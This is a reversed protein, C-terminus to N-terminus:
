RAEKIAKTIELMSMEGPDKRGAPVVALKPHLSAVSRRTNAGGADNDPLAIFKRKMKKLINLRAKSAQGCLAIAPFGAQWVRVADFVGEVLVVSGKWAKALDHGVVFDGVGTPMQYRPERGPTMARAVWGRLKSNIFAPIVVYDGATGMGWYRLANLSVGRGALYPCDDLDMLAEFEDPLAVGKRKEERAYGGRRKLADEASVASAFFAGGLLHRATGRGGCSLCHWIAKKFNLSASPHADEHRTNEKHVPCRFAIEDGHGNDVPSLGHLRMQHITRERQTTSALAALGRGTRGDSAGVGAAGVGQMIGHKAM